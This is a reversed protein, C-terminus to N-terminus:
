SPELCLSSSKRRVESTRIRPGTSGDALRV